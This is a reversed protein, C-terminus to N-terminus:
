WPVMIITIMHDHIVAVSDYYLRSANALSTNHPVFSIENWWRRAGSCNSAYTKTGHRNFSSNLTLKYGRLKISIELIQLIESRALVEGKNAALYSKLGIESLGFIPFYPGPSVHHKWAWEEGIEGECTKCVAKRRVFYGTTVRARTALSKLKWKSAWGKRVEERLFHKMVFDLSRSRVPEFRLFM